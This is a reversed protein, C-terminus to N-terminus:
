DGDERHNNSPKRQTLGVPLWFAFYSLPVMQEPQRGLCLTSFSSFSLPLSPLACPPHIVCRVTLFAWLNRSTVVFVLFEDRQGTSWSSEEGSPVLVGVGSLLGVCYTYKMSPKGLSNQSEKDMLSSSKAPFIDDCRFSINGLTAQLETSLTVLNQVQCLPIFLIWLQPFKNKLCRRGASQSNLCSPRCESSDQSMVSKSFSQLVSHPLLSSSPQMRVDSFM